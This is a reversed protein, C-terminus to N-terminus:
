KGATLVVVIRKRNRYVQDVIKINKLVNGLLMPEKLAVAIIIGEDESWSDLTIRLNEIGRLSKKFEEVQEFGGDSKIELRVEGEFLELEMYRAEEEAERARAAEEAERKARERAEQEAQKQALKEAEKQRASEEAERKAREKAEQEAQKQALKEAEKQRASEEAERKARERAEREAQKKALREAEKVKAAEQAKRKAREKGEQEEQKRALKEAERVKAAEEAERKARERAEQEAQKQALKEAEKQRASEEAERKARERAEQEAQKRALKEAELREKEKAEQEAKERALREAELREKEKAEQEAKERALREAELREKEKAEQEAKERALREAELREKEKAEQEAKERALREAEQQEKERAEQEAKERALREAEQREKERAEQEARERALREAEQQEKERAEQEARERALREAQKQALKEAKKDEVAEASPGINFVSVFKKRRPVTYKPDLEIAKMFAKLAEEHRGERVLATGKSRWGDATEITEEGQPEFAIAEQEAKEKALREAEQREKERAEQEARERALREAEQREKERAEQEAREKALREAERQEKERAEKAAGKRQWAEAQEMKKLIQREIDRAQKGEKNRGLRYLATAKNHWSSANGPDLEISRTLARLALNDKGLRGLVAGKNRWAAANSSNIDIAEEFAELADEYRGARLLAIGRSRWTESDGTSRATKDREPEKASPAPKIIEIEEQRIEDKQKTFETIFARVMVPCFQVGTKRKLEEIAEADTLSDYHPYETTMNDFADAVAILRAYMPIADGKLGEPYGGGDYREHHYRVIKAAKELFPIESIIEAGIVSHELLITKEYDTLSDSSRLGHDRIGIKGIDHLLVGFEITQLEDPSLSFAKAALLAYERVRRSHGRVNLQYSDVRRSEGPKIKNLDINRLALVVMSVLLVLAETSALGSLVIADKETFEDGGTKNMVSLVGIVRQGRSIPVALISETTIGDVGDIEPDFREDKTVDNATVTTATRAVWRVIGTNIHLRVPKLSSKLKGDALYYSLMGQGNDVILLSVASSHLIRQTVSLIDEILKLVEPYSTAKNAVEYLLELRTTYETTDIQIEGNERAM